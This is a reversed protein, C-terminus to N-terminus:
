KNACSPCFQMEKAIETGVGGKDIVNDWIDKRVPYTKQRMEITVMVPKQRRGMAKGCIECKYSM